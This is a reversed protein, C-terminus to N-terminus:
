GLQVPEFLLGEGPNLRWCETYGAARVYDEAEEFYGAIMPAQHCDSGLIVRGGMERWRKLTWLEPYPCPQAARVMGGTNVELLCGASLIAELADFAAKRYGAAETDVRGRLRKMFVDFHGLIEPRTALAMAGLSRFYARALAQTDGGFEERIMQEVVPPKGEVQTMGAASPLLHVAGIRYTYEGCDTASYLDKEVGCYLRVRGAYKQRLRRFERLYAKEGEETMGALGGFNVRCHPTFGLSVFGQALAAEVMEEMTNHADCFQTHTHCNSLVKM